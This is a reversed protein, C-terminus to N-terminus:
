FVESNLMRQDTLFQTLEQKDILGNGDLDLDEFTVEAAEEASKANREFWDKLFKECEAVSLQGDKDEDYKEFADEVEKALNQKSLPDKAAMLQKQAIEQETLLDARLAGARAQEILRNEEEEADIELEKPAEQCLGM